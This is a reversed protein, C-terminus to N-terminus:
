QYKEMVYEDQNVKIGSEGQELDLGVYRFSEIERRGVKYKDVVRDIVNKNFAESGAFLFDDVHM